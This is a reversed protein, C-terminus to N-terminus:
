LKSPKENHYKDAEEILERLLEEITIERFM